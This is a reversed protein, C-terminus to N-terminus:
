CKAVKNMEKVFSFSDNVCHEAPIPTKLLDGLFKALSYNYTGISYVVPRFPPHELKIKVKHM